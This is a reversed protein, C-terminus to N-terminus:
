LAPSIPITQTFFHATNLFAIMLSAYFGWKAWTFATGWNSGELSFKVKLGSSEQEQELQKTKWLLAGRLINYSLMFVFAVFSWHFALGTQWDV